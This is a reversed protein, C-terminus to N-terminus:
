GRAPRARGDRRQEWSLPLHKIGNQFNSRLRVPAGALSFPGLQDLVTGVFARLQVRALHAGLCFHPGFGFTVHDNPWRGVDLEDPHDFVRPDRNAAGHFVVVKDGRRVGVSGLRHDETATRRFHLVPPWFRLLEEVARNRRSPEARLLDQMEPHEALTALAGPIGNRLTENGAVAFLWFLNEFEGDTVPEVGEGALGLLLSMVDEGPETRKWTALERAYAYLDAMGARSRPNPLRGRADPQPRAALAREAMPSGQGPRFTSSAAYDPDQYGIVRNSWDFLLGRDSIPVGLLEALTFLPLDAAVLALDAEGQAAVEGVLLEARSRIRAELRAVARPTFAAAVLNRLRTHEPPDSNLLQQRVEALDSPEYDHIQTGGLWSSYRRADRLVVKVERHGFVAWFGQGGPWGLLPPEELFHVSGAERLLALEAYPVRREYTAPDYVTRGAAALAADRGSDPM